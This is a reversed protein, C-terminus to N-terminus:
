GGCVEAAQFQMVSGAERCTDWTESCTHRGVGDSAVRVTLVQANRMVAHTGNKGIARHPCFLWM